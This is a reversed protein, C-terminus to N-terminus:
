VASKKVAYFHFHFVVFCTQACILLITPLKETAPRVTESDPDELNPNTVNNDPCDKIGCFQLVYDSVEEEEGDAVTPKLITSTIISGTISASVTLSPELTRASLKELVRLNKKHAACCPSIRIGQVDSTEQSTQTAFHKNSSSHPSLCFLECMQFFCFFIGFFRTVVAEETEKSLAAYRGAELTFYSCQATWLPAACLGVIISAPTM